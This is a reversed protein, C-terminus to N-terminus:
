GNFSVAYLRLQGESCRYSSNIIIHSYPSLANTMFNLFTLKITYVLVADVPTDQWVISTILVKCRINGNILSILTLM